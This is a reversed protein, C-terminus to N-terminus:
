KDLLRIKGIHMYGYKNGKTKIHWWNGEQIHTHFIEKDKVVTVIQGNTNQISRVNTYGDADDIVARM